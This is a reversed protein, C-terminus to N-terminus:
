EPVEKYECLPLTGSLIANGCTIRGLDECESAIFVLVDYGAAKLAEEDKKYPHYTTYDGITTIGNITAESTKHMPTLKIIYDDPDFYRLLIGPDIEYEAVAFNLTIKRGYPVIGRMIEAIGHLTHANNNFLYKREEENTSNISLQLGAEGDLLRNKIRMWTHIFTKLWENNKPMITSVVPHIKYEPDIHKKLWKTADLVNPNWTPEGMRAYHINLRQTSIVEPHLKIGTVVQKILDKFTANKGAGVRPVDCYPCRMSCGYQTSITIVWKEELPLLDTHTVANIERDLGLADCKINVDKGYDGISLMELKGKAGEVVLINGTPVQLNRIIRM